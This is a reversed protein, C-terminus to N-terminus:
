SVIQSPLFKDKIESNHKLKYWGYLKEHICVTCYEGFDHEMRQFLAFFKGMQDSLGIKKRLAQLFLPQKM